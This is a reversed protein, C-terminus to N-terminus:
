PWRTPPDFCCQVRGSDPDVVTLSVGDLTVSGKQVLLDAISPACDVRMLVDDGNRQIAAIRGTGDVHGQVIHGDLRDGARVAREVNVPDGVARDGVSTLRLTEPVAQFTLLRGKTATVTLCCGNLAVSDGIEVGEAVDERVELDLEVCDGVTAIRQLPAVDEVIGTFM